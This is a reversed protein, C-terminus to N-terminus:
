APRYITSPGRTTTPYSSSSGMVENIWRTYACLKTYVSPVAPDLCGNAYWLVGQLQGNCVLVGGDENLCNDSNAQGACIMTPGWQSTGALWDMCTRDDVTPVDVCRPREVVANHNPLTTGWGSASCCVGPLACRSALPIPRVYSNFRAPRSLRVMALSHLPSRYPSHQIVQGIPIHQEPGDAVSINHEGLSATTISSYGCTFSTVIWWENILAGSCGHMGNSHLRVLWPRSHPQCVKEEDLPSAGALGLVLTFLLLKM